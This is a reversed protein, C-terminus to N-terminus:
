KILHLTGDYLELVSVEFWLVSRIYLVHEVVTPNTDINSSITSLQFLLWAAPQVVAPYSLRLSTSRKRMVVYWARM